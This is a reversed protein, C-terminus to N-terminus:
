QAPSGNKDVPVNNVSVTSEMQQAMKLHDELTPLTQAAFSRVDSNSGSNAEKKFEAIDKEHDAVMDRAYVRDFEAGSLKSLRDYIAQDKRDMKTPLTINDRSAVDKLQDGAKSHDSEMRRGFEKVAESSGNRQALQGLKVEAMGGAAAKKAFSKDMVTAQNASSTQGQTTRTQDTPQAGQGFAGGSALLMSGLGALAFGKVKNM